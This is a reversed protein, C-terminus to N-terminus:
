IKLEHMQKGLGQGDANLSTNEIEFLLLMKELQVRSQEVKERKEKYFLCVFFRKFYNDVHKIDKGWEAKTEWAIAEDYLVTRQLSCM